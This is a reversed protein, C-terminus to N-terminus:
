NRANPKGGFDPQTVYHRGGPMQDTGNHAPKTCGWTWLYKLIDRYLTVSFGGHRHASRHVDQTVTTSRVAVTREFAAPLHRLMTGIAPLPASLPPSELAKPPHVTILRSRNEGCQAGPGFLTLAVLYVRTWGITWWRVVM